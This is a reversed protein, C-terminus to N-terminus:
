LTRFLLKELWFNHNDITKSSFKNNTVNDDQNEM